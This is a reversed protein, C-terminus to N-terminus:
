SVVMMKRGFFRGIGMVVLRVTQLLVVGIVVGMLREWGPRFSLAEYSDPVFVVLFVLSFQSGAYALRGGSNEIHRGIVVGAVMCLLTAWLEGQCALTALTAVAAGAMCGVMRHMVRTSVIRRNSGLTVLPVMMLAMITIAAQSLERDDCWRALWPAAALACAAQAAHLAAERHWIAIEDRKPVVPAELKLLWPRLTRNSLLSVILCASTGAVVELMRTRAFDTVHAAPHPLGDLIVMSFTLGTLFWAYSRGRTLACYLTCGGVLAVVVSVVPLVHGMWRAAWWASLAGVFTGVIRLGGRTMTEALNSRMVIYGSFAAWGVNEAKLLHAFLIALLVSLVAEVEDVARPGLRRPARFDRWVEGALERARALLDASANGKTNQGTSMRPM